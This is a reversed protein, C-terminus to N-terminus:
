GNLRHFRGGKVGGEVPLKLAVVWFEPWLQTKEDSFGGSPVFDWELIGIMHDHSKWGMLRNTKENRSHPAGLIDDYM